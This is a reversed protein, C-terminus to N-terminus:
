GRDGANSTPVARLSALSYVGMFQPHSAVWEALAVDAGRQAPDYHYGLFRYADAGGAPGLRAEINYGLLPAQNLERQWRRTM